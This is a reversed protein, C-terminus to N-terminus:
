VVARVVGVLLRVVLVTLPGALLLAIVLALLRVRARPRGDEGRLSSLV